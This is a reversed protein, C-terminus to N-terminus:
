RRNMLLGIAIGIGAAVGVTRWPNEHVYEDTARVAVKTRELASEELDNLRVKAAKLNQEMKARLSNAKDGGENAVAKLLQEAEAVVANFDRLLEKKMAQTSQPM